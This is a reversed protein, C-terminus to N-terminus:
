DNGDGPIVKKISKELKIRPILMERGCNTCRIKVDSGSYLVVFRKKGCPHEKKLELFDGNQFNIIMDRWIFSEHLVYGHPM